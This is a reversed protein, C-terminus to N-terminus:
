FPEEDDLLTVPGFARSVTAVDDDNGLSAIIDQLDKARDGPQMPNNIGVARARRMVEVKQKATLAAFPDVPMAAVDDMSYSTKKPAAAPAAPASRNDTAKAAGIPEIHALVRVKTTDGASEMAKWVVVRTNASIGDLKDRMAAGAATDTRDTRIREIGDPHEKTEVTRLSVICRTSSQEYEYGVYEGSFVKAELMRAVMARQRSREGFMATIEPILRNVRAMWAETNECQGAAAVALGIVQEPNSM